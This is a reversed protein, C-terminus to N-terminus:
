ARSLYARVRAGSVLVPGIACVVVGLGCLLVTWFDHGDMVTDRYEVREAVQPGLLVIFLLYLPIQLPLTVLVGIRASPRAAVLGYALVGLGALGPVMIVLALDFLPEPGNDVLRIVALAILALLVAANLLIMVVAADLSGPRRPPQWAPYM